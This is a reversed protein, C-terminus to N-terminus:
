HWGRVLVAARMGPGFVGLRYSGFTSVKGGSQNVVAPPNGKLTLIHKVFAEVVKQFHALIQKRRETDETAEFNDQNKLENILAENQALDDKEPLATSIPPTLGWRQPQQSDTDM